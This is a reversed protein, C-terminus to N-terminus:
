LGFHVRCSDSNWWNHSFTIRFSHFSRYNKAVTVIEDITVSLLGLITFTETNKKKLSKPFIKHTKIYAIFWYICLIYCYIRLSNLGTYSTIETPHVFYVSFTDSTLLHFHVWYVRSIYENPIIDRGQPSPFIMKTKVTNHGGMHGYAHRDM